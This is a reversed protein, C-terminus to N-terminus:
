GIRIVRNAIRLVDDDHTTILFSTGEETAELIAELVKLKNQPDLGVTPEDVLIINSKRALASAIAGRRREGSSLRAIPTNERHTLGFKELWKKGLEGLEKGLTPATFYLLPNDPIYSLKGRLWLDIGPKRIRSSTAILKLLTTKGTGSPGMIVAIEGEHLTIEINELIYRDSGPYSYRKISVKLTTSGTNSPPKLEMLKRIIDDYLQVSLDTLMGNILTYHEDVLDMWLGINHDVIIASSGSALVDKIVEKLRLANDHDLHSTPEDFLLLKKRSATATAVALRQTEGASLTYTTRRSLGGLGYRALYKVIEPYSKVNSFCAIESWVYPTAIGFWPEQPVYSINRKRESLPPRITGIVHANYVEPIVGSIVRLLTTKGSGSPGTILIAQGDSISFSVSKLIQKNGIVVGLERVELSM